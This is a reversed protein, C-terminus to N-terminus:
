EKTPPPPPESWSVVCWKVGPLTAMLAEMQTRTFERGDCEFLGTDPDEFFTKM